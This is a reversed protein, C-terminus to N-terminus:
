NIENNIPEELSWIWLHKLFFTHSLNFYNFPSLVNHGEFNTTVFVFFKCKTKRPYIHVDCKPNNKSM